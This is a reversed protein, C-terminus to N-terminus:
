WAFMEDLAARYTGYCNKMQTRIEGPDLETPISRLCLEHRDLHSKLDANVKESVQKNSVEEIEARSADLQKLLEEQTAQLERVRAEAAAAARKAAEADEVYDATADVGIGIVTGLAPQMIVTGIATAPNEEVWDAAKEFWSKAHATPPVITTMFVLLGFASIRM